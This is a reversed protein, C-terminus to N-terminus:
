CAPVDQQWQSVDGLHGHVSVMIGQLCLAEGLSHLGTKDEATGAVADVHLLDELNDEGLGKIKAAGNGLDFM